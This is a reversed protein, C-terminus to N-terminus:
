LLNEKTKYYLELKILIDKLENEIKKITMKALIEDYTYDNEEKLAELRIQGKDDFYLKILGGIKECSLVLSIKIQNKIEIPLVSFDKDLYYLNKYKNAVAIIKM